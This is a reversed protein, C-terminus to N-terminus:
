DANKNISTILKNVDDMLKDMILPTQPNFKFKIIFQNIKYDFLSILLAM